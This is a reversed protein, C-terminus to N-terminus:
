CPRGVVKALAVALALRARKPGLALIRLWQLRSITNNM